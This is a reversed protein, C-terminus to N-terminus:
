PLLGSYSVSPGMESCHVLAKIKPRHSVQTLMPPWLGTALPYPGQFVWGMQEGAELHHTIKWFNCWLTDYYVRQSSTVKGDLSSLFADRTLLLRKKIKQNTSYQHDPSKNKRTGLSFPCFLFNKYSIVSNDSYQRLFDFAQRQSQKNASFYIYISYM